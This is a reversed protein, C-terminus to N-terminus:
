SASGHHGRDDGPHHRAAHAPRAVRGRGPRPPEGRACARARVGSAPTRGHPRLDGGPPCGRRPRQHQGPGLLRRRGAPRRGADPAPAARDAREGRSLRLRALRRGLIGLLLLLLGRDHGSLFMLISAAAVNALAVLLGAGFVLAIRVRLSSARQGGWELALAGVVLSIGGSLLLILGLFTLDSSPAGLREAAVLMVCVALLLVGGLLLMRRILRRPLRRSVM